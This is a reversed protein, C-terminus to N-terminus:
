FQPPNRAPLLISFAAGQGPLSAVTIEGGHAEVIQYCISLGLGTGVGAGKTTFGPDFIRGIHEPKIGPGSDQVTVRVQDGVRATALVVRGPGEIAQLANVVLNMFVQGLQGPHGEVEPLQAAYERQLEVRGKALHGVLLLTSELCDHLDVPVPRAEDVRAFTRLERVINTIRECATVNVEM